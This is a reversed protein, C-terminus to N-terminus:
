QQKAARLVAGLPKLSSGFLVLIAGPPGLHGWSSRVLEPFTLVTGFCGWPPGFIAWSEGLYGRSAGLHGWSSGFIVWSPELITVLRDWSPWSCGRKELAWFTAFGVESKPAGFLAWSDGLLRGPPWLVTIKAHQEQAGNKIGKLARMPLMKPAMRSGKEIVKAM